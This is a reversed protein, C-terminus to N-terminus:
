WCSTPPAGAPAPLAEWRLPQPATETKTVAAGRPRTLLEPRNPRRRGRSGGPAAAPGTDRKPRWLRRSRPRERGVAKEAMTRAGQHLAAEVRRAMRAPATALRSLEAARQQALEKQGALMRQTEAATDRIGRSPREARRTAADVAAVFAEIDSREVRLRGLRLYLLVCWITTLALLFAVLLDAGFETMAMAGQREIGDEVRIVLRGGTCGIRGQALPVQGCRLSVQPDSAANLRLTSGVELGLIDHLDM